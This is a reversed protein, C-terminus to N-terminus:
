RFIMSSRGCASRPAPRASGLPRHQHQLAVGRVFVQQLVLVDFLHIEEQRQGLVVLVVDHGAQQGLAHAGLRTSASM